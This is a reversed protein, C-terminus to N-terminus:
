KILELSSEPFDQFICISELKVVYKQKQLFNKKLKRKVIGEMGEYFWSTVRIKQWYKM